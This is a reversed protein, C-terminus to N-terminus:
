FHLQSSLNALDLAKQAVFTPSLSTIFMITLPKDAMMHSAGSVFWQSHTVTSHSILPFAMRLLGAMLPPLSSPSFPAWVSHLCCALASAEPLCPQSFGLQCKSPKCLVHRPPSRLIWPPLQLAQEKVEMGESNPAVSIPSFSHCGWGGRHLVRSSPTMENDPSQCWRNYLEGYIYFSINFLFIM